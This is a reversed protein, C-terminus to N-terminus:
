SRSEDTSGRDDPNDLSRSVLFLFVIVGGWVVFFYKFMDIGYMNVPQNVGQFVIYPLCILVLYVCFLLIQFETQKFLRKFKLMSDGNIVM